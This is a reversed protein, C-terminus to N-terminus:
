SFTAEYLWFEVDVGHVFLSKLRCRGAMNDEVPVVSDDPDWLFYDGDITGAVLHSHEETGCIVHLNRRRARAVIRKGHRHQTATEIAVLRIVINERRNLHPHWLGPLQIGPEGLLPRNGEWVLGGRRGGITIAPLTPDAYFYSQTALASAMRAPDIGAIIALCVFNCGSDHVNNWDRDGDIARGIQEPRRVLFTNAYWTQAFYEIYFTQM